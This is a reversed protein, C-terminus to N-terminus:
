ILEPLHIGAHINFVELKTKYINEVLFRILATKGVGSEGEIVCPIGCRERLVILCMKFFNDMTLVYDKFSPKIEESNDCDIMEGTTDRSISRLVELMMKELQNKDSVQNYSCNESFIREFSEKISRQQISKNLEVMTKPNQILNYLKVHIPLDKDKLYVFKYSQKVYDPLILM